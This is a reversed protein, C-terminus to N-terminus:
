RPTANEQWRYGPDTVSYPWSAGGQHHFDAERGCVWLFLEAVRPVSQWRRTSDAFYENEFAYDARAFDFDEELIWDRQPPVTRWCDWKLLNRVGDARKRPQRHWISYATFFVSGAPATTMLQGALHGFHELEERAIPILHSGPLFLTPGMEPTADKPYYFIQLLQLNREFKSGADIHWPRATIPGALRHNVLWDPLHFREGLLSRTVGAVEPNLVVEAMFREEALLDNQATVLPDRDVERDVFEAIWENTSEPIVAELQLIGTKCFELVEGDSLTPAIGEDAMRAQANAPKLLDSM